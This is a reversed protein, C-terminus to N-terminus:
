LVVKAVLIVLLLLIGIAACVAAPVSLLASQRVEIRGREGLLRRLLDLASAPTVARLRASYDDVDAEYDGFAGAALEHAYWDPVANKRAYMGLLKTRIGDIEEDSAVERQLDELVTALHTAAREENGRKVDAALLLLGGGRLTDVQCWTGYALGHRLRLLDFARNNLLTRLVDCTAKDVSQGGGNWAGMAVLSQNRFPTAIRTRIVTPTAPADSTPHILPETGGPVATTGLLDRAESEVEGPDVAGVVVVAMNDPRYHKRHWEKLLDPTLAAYRHFTRWVHMKGRWRIDMLRVWHNRFWGREYFWALWPQRLQESEALLVRVEHACGQPSFRPHAVIDALLGLAARWHEVLVTMTYCTTTDSTYGNFTGGLREIGARLQQFSHKDNDSFCLHEVMHSIGLTERAEHAFGVHVVVSLTALESNFPALVHLQTANPLTTRHLAM